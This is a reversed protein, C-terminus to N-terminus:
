RDIQFLSLSLHLDDRYAVEVSDIISPLSVQSTSVGFEKGMETSILSANMVIGDVILNCFFSAAVVVWGWGGDLPVVVDATPSIEDDPKQADNEQQHQQISPPQLLKENPIAVGNQRKEDPPNTQHPM